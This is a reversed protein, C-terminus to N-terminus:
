INQCAFGAGAFRDQHVGEASDQAALYRRRYDSWSFFFGKDFCDKGGIRIHGGKQLAFFQKGFIVAVFHDDGSLYAFAAALHTYVAGQNIGIYQGFQSRHQHCHMGLM